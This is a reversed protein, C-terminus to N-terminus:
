KKREMHWEYGRNALAEKMKRRGYKTFANAYFAVKSIRHNDMWYLQGNVTSIHSFVYNIDEVYTSRYIEYLAMLELFSAKPDDTRLPVTIEYHM